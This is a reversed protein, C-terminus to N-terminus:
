EKISQKWRWLLVENIVVLVALGIALYVHNFVALLLCAIGFLAVELAIRWGVSLPFKAKPAIFLGWITAAIVPLVVALAAKLWIPVPLNYGGYALAALMCLELAFRLALNLHKLVEM